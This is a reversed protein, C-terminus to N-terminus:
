EDDNQGETPTSDTPPGDDRPADDAAASALEPRQVPVPGALARYLLVRYEARERRATLYQRELSQRSTLAELVRLYDLQGGLYNARTREIVADTTKLQQELSAIYADQHFELALADEVDQLADLIAQGYRNVTESLLARNRDVEAAREGGDFLPHVLNAALSALWNDFLDHVDEASTRLDASLSVRPYRAAIASALRRDQALVALFASEVDPRRQLLDSPVGTSPLAPMSPLSSRPLGLDTAPPRGLLVALQHRLTAVRQEALTRLGETSQVLQQQRLVDAALVQGQRFRETVLEQVRRNTDAQEGIVRVQEAAEALQFWVTAVSAALSIAATQVDQESVAVDYLSADHASRIRGWLDVEYDAALGLLFDNTYTTDGDRRERTRSAAADFDVAPLLPAGERRAIAEAEALRDWAGALTFNGEFALDIARDLGPDGFQTWWDAPTEASGSDSFAAPVEVPSGVRPPASRCGSLVALLIAGPLFGTLLLRQLSRRSGTRVPEFSM